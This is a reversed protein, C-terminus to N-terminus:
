YEHPLLTTTFSRDCETIIYFLVGAPSRYRSVLRGEDALAQDNRAKDSPDLEGWDGVCHRKLGALIDDATLEELAGRTMVTQGLPFKSALITLRGQM